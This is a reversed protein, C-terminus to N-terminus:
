APALWVQSNLILSADPMLGISDKFYKQLCNVILENYRIANRTLSDVKCAYNTIKINQFTDSKNKHMLKQIYSSWHKPFKAHKQIHWHMIADVINFLNNQLAKSLDKVPVLVDSFCSM